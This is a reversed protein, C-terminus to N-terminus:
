WPAPAGENRARERLLEKLIRGIRDELRGAEDEALRREIFLRSVGRARDSLEELRLRRSRGARAALRRWCWREYRAQARLIRMHQWSARALREVLRRETKDWSRFVQRVVALHKEFDEPAEGM